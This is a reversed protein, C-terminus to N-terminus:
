CARDGWEKNYYNIESWHSIKKIHWRYDPALYLSKKLWVLKKFNQKSYYLKTKCNIGCKKLNTPSSFYGSFKPGNEIIKPTLATKWM